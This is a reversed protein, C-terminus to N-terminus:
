FGPWAVRGGVKTSGPPSPCSLLPFASFPPFYKKLGLPRLFGTLPASHFVAVVEQCQKNEQALFNQIGSSDDQEILLLEVTSWLNAIDKKGMEKAVEANLACLRTPRDGTLKYKLALSVFDQSECSFLDGHQMM